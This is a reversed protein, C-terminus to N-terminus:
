ANAGSRERSKSRIPRAARGGNLRASSATLRKYEHQWSRKLRLQMKAGLPEAGFSRSCEVLLAVLGEFDNWDVFETSIGGGPVCNHYNGLALCLGGARIGWANYATSECSGGDMLARQVRFQPARASVRAAAAQLELTIAPDFVSMRDGIRIVPGRGVRATARRPSCELGIVTTSSAIAQAELLGICGVFGTEEARTFIGALPRESRTRWCTDLAALIAAAGMLDDCVRAHLRTGRMVGDTLDFVGFAPQALRGRVQSLEVRAPGKETRSVSKVRATAQVDGDVSFFRVDSGPLLRAPVGGHFSAREVGNRRGEYHFAPHDLHASFALAPAARRRGTGRWTVILNAFRDHRIELGKREAVFARVGRSPGDEFYPATPACLLSRALELAIEREAQTLVGTSKKPLAFRSRPADAVESRRGSM